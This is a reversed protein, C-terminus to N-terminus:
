AEALAVSRYAIPRPFRLNIEHLFAEEDPELKPEGVVVLQDTPRSGPWCGYDLLQGMAERICGRATLATKIEYVIRRVDTEVLVDIRGGSGPAPQEVGVHAEGHEDVLEQYLQTQLANHRLNINLLREALTATAHVPKPPCGPRLAPWATTSLPIANPVGREVFRYIPMLRDLTDMVVDYNPAEPNGAGGLFIFSGLRAFREEIPVPRHVAGRKPAFEWMWLDAFDEPNQRLYDNFLGIKRLLPDISPLSRSPELSFAVGFRFAGKENDDEFGLNFQLEDRGGRHFTWHEHRIGGFVQRNQRKLGRTVTRFAQMEGLPRGSARRDVEAVIEQLDAM